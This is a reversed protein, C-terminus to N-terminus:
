HEFNYATRSSLILTMYGQDLGRRMTRSECCVNMCVRTRQVKEAESKKESAYIKRKEKTQSNLRETPRSHFAMLLLIGAIIKITVENRIETELAAAATAASATKNTQSIKTIIVCGVNACEM